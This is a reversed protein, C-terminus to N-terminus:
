LVYERTTDCLRSVENLDHDASHPIHQQITKM